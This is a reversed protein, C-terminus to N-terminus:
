DSGEAEPVVRIEVPESGALYTQAAAHIDAPMLANLIDLRQRRRDLTDPKSQAMAVLDLWSANQNESREYGERIPNRARELLDADIPDSAMEAAIERVVAATEDMAESAVTAFATLHGFGPYTPQSYSFAEPSYTAGLEERLRETLRLGMAAALVDRTIDDALDSSDDTPWSLSVAGQDAEGAHTLTRVSRDEVFGVPVTTQVTETRIARQPLTGLTAAVAAIAAEPDLDGVLGLALPGQALQPAVAARLDDLSVQTLQSADTLGLRADDGALTANFGTAFVQVPASRINKALIPAIGAWQAQTEPRWATATLRAALLDLQLKLDSPTTAGAAVLAGNSADLGFSVERGALVRRLQDPDHAELGDVSLAIALMEKLGPGDAPFASTGDGVRLSFSVKGPEFDTTKLNLQLGNAFQVTRIGLDEVTEDAVVSGPEGWEDYAFDVAEAEVPAGVAVAASEGLAAAIAAEGGEVAQKTSVHVVTPGGQWAARFAESATEATITPEIAQFMALDAAPATVVADNLSASVLADALAASPRGAAQTVANQLATQINAKAEAIEAPSFGYQQARRLEQEALVLTDRWQGDKAVILLGFSRASRFLPQDAAQAGLTPSDAARSLAAIRNSLAVAAIARLLEDRQAAITNTTPMWSSIRQLEIIEPISPDVFNSIVPQQASAIESTYLDRADGEGEWDSFIGEVKQQMAAVDFDGVIVLTAREPRYYGDYFARLDEASINRIREVDANIREGLRSNPLAAAFYDAVRRRQPENRVQAESLLIGREREVAEPALTLEGAMERIVTLATEVTEDDTNPLALKYTTYDLSTEANTDAGFALGLRELMPLLDGEPINTTGNFAMHEVFHAAGNESDTEERSGVEVNFRIAAEGAPNTNRQLAYRMGNPLVGFLVDPDATLDPSAIGWEPIGATAEAVSAAPAAEQAAAVPVVTGLSLAIALGSAAVATKRSM